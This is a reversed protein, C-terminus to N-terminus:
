TTRESRNKDNKKKKLCFVAYSIRMLSQLESTHEESRQGITEINHTLLLTSAGARASALAAETGAHGGGVVIVDYNFMASKDQNGLWACLENVAPAFQLPQRAPVSRAGTYGCSRFLTTYPFLTATRTSRPPQRIMLFFVLVLCVVFFM